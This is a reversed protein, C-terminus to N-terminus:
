EVNWEMRLVHMAWPRFAVGVCRWRPLLVVTGANPREIGLGDLLNGGGGHRPASGAIQHPILEQM